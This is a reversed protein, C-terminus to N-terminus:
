RGSAGIENAKGGLLGFANPTGPKSSFDDMENNMLIGTGPITIHSGYSFNLTYTNSVANGQNDMISFHTTNHSEYPLPNGPLIESSPRARDPLISKALTDAYAESTLGTVPVPYFDPDGLYKSRDAYALKMAEAMAHITKASGFGWESIPFHSLINLIQIVHVGGSSPPPMTVIGYGRYHGHLPEREVAKYNKLDQLTILGGGKTMADAISHAIKGEYFAKPGLDAILRLSQALQRNKFNEGARYPTGDAHFFIARSAANRKLLDSRETLTQAFSETVPFGEEALRIAPAMVQKLSMTGYKRLALTLGAVTGPVGSSAYSFHAKENDVNGNADLFLDPRAAAPAMERYDIAISKHQDALYVLMFGGGGINGAQPLTVALAFGVAVAADVANGGQKLIDAGVRSALAEQSAVMGHHAVVPHHISAYDIIPATATTNQALAATASFILAVSFTLCRFCASKFM